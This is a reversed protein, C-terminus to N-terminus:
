LWGSWLIPITVHGPFLIPRDSARATPSPSWRVTCHFANGSKSTHTQLRFAQVVAKEPLRYQAQNCADVESIPSSFSSSEALAAGAGITLASALLGARLLM